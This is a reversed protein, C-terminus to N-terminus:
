CLGGDGPWNRRGQRRLIAGRSKLFRFDRPKQRFRGLGQRTAPCAPSRVRQRAPRPPALRASVSAAFRRFIWRMWGNPCPRVPNVWVACLFVAAGAPPVPTGPHSRASRDMRPRGAGSAPKRPAAAPGPSAPAGRLTATSLRRRCPRRACRVAPRGCSSLGRWARDARRRGAAAHGCERGRWSACGARWCRRRGVPHGALGAREAGRRHHLAGVADGAGAGAHCLRHGARVLGCALATILALSALLAGAPRAFRALAGLALVTAALPLLLLAAVDGMRLAAAAALAALLVAAFRLPLRAPAKLPAALRWGGICAAFLAFACILSDVAM